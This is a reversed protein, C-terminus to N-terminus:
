GGFVAWCAVLADNLTAGGGFGTVVRSSNAYVAASNRRFCCVTRNGDGNWDDIKGGGIGVYNVSDIATTYSITTDGTGNDTISSVNFSDRIAITGTGNWNIWAKCTNDGYIAM